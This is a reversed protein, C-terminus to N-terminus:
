WIPGFIEAEMNLTRGKFISFNKNIEVTNISSLDQFSSCKKLVATLFEFDPVPNGIQDIRCVDM